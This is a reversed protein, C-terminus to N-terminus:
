LFYRILKPLYILDFVIAIIASVITLIALQSISNFESFLLPALTVIIIMTTKIVAKGTIRLSKDIAEDKKIGRLINFRYSTIIHISDDVILGFIIAFIFANSLSFYFSGLSMFGVCVFIPFTNPILIILLYKFNFNSIILFLLCITLVAIILGILIELTIKDSLKDFLYGNGKLQININLDNAKQKIQNVLILSNKSGIDPMRTKISIQKEKTEQLYNENNSKLNKFSGLLSYDITFGLTKIENELIIINDLKLNDNIEINFSVEKYGGFNKDFFQMEKYLDSSKNFEDNIHNNIEFYNIGFLCLFSMILILPLSKKSSQVKIFKSILNDIKNNLSKKGKVIHLNLEICISYTVLIVFLSILIGVTTIMGLRSIPLVNSFCFSLFGIATTISTLAVPKGIKNVQNKFYELKSKKTEGNDNILHMFDSICVIFLIAPMIIMVLEIGGFLLQSIMFSITISFIVSMIVISVFKMNGSFVWLILSCLFASFFTIYLLEKIVKDKIYIEGKVQSTIYISLAELTNFKYELDTIFQKNFDEGLDSKLIIIFFFIKQDKSIFLSEKKNIKEIFDDFDKKTELKNNNGYPFFFSLGHLSIDNFVSQSSIINEDELLGKHVSQLSMLDEFQIKKEFEVGVLFLNTSDIKETEVEDAYQLIRESDYFIKPNKLKFISFIFCLLILSLLKYKHKWVFTIM